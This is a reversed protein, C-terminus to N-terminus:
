IKLATNLRTSAGKVDIENNLSTQEYVPTLLELRKQFIKYVNIPSSFSTDSMNKLESRNNDINQCIAQMFDICEKAEIQKDLGLAKFIDMFVDKDSNSEGFYVHREEHLLIMSAAGLKIDQEKIYNLLFSFNIFYKIYREKAGRSILNSHQLYDQINQEKVPWTFIDPKKCIYNFLNIDYALDRIKLIALDEIKIELGRVEKIGSEQEVNLNQCKCKAESSNFKASGCKSCIWSSINKASEVLGQFNSVELFLPLKADAKKLDVTKLTKLHSKLISAIEQSEDESFLVDREEESWRDFTLYYKKEEEEPSLPGPETPLFQSLKKMQTQGSMDEFIEVMNVLASNTKNNKVFNLNIAGYSIKLPSSGFMPPLKSATFEENLCKFIGKWGPAVKMEEQTVLQGNKEAAKYASFNLLDSFSDEINSNNIQKPM